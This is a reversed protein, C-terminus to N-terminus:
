CHTESYNIKVHTKLFKQFEDILQSAESWCLEKHTNTQM